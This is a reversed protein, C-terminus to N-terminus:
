ILQFYLTGNWFQLDKRLNTDYRVQISSKREPDVDVQRESVPKSASGKRIDEMVGM